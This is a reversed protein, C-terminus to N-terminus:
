YAEVEVDAEGYVWNGDSDQAYVESHGEAEVYDVTGDNDFDYGTADVTTTEAYTNGDGDTAWTTEEYSVEVETGGDFESM